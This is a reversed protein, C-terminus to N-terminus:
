HDIRQPVARRSGQYGLKARLSKEQETAKPKQYVQARENCELDIENPQTAVNSTKDRQRRIAM